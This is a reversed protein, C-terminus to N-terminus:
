HAYIWRTIEPWISQHANRGVLMGLHQVAVGRDGSYWIVSTDKSQAAEHFPLMSEPPILSSHVDVVSLLPAQVMDPAVRKGSVQLSGRMLRDERYLYEIVEEFLRRAMPMEDYTWRVVRMHTQMALADGLSNLWDAQREWLFSAPSIVLSVTTLFSGPVNGFTATIAQVRPSVGIASELVGADSRFHLPTGLLVLGQVRSPHLAAFITALVGGLSHGAVFAQGKGTEEAIADLCALILQDGYEALGYDELHTGPREWELMYVQLGECLCHRVVSVQPMLDWLYVQKIPAPVILLVPSSSGAAGYARLRVGPSSLVVRYPTERPGAGALDMLSGQWRRYHDLQEYLM